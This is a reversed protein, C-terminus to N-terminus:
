ARLKKRRVAAVLFLFMIIFILTIFWMVSEPITTGTLAELTFTLAKGGDFIPLPLINFLAINLSIIALILWFFPQSIALSKGIISIIGIPGIIGSNNKTSVLSSAEAGIDHMTQTIHCHSMKLAHGWSQWQRPTTYQKYIGFIIFTYYTFAINFFIGALVIIMKPIYSLAALQQPDIEVYGGLPLLAIQFTTHGLPVSFLAPGFGISFVPTEVGFIKAFLFHGLEHIIIVLTLGLLGGLIYLIHHNKYKNPVTEM